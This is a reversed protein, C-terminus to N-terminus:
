RRGPRPARHIQPQAPDGSTALTDGVVRGPATLVLRCGALLMAVALALVLVRVSLEVTSSTSTPRRAWPESM